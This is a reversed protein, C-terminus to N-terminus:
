EQNGTLTELREKANQLAQEMVEVRKSLWSVERETAARELEPDDSFPLAVGPYGANGYFRNMRRLGRGNGWGRGCYGFAADAFGPAAYGTCYGARRGTMPGMGMPGTGDRGPM